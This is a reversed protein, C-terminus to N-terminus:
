IFHILNYCLLSAVDRVFLPHIVSSYCVYVLHLGSLYRCIVLIGFECVPACGSPVSLGVKLQTFFVGSSYRIPLSHIVFLVSVYRVEFVITM